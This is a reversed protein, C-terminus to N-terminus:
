ENLADRAGHENRLSFISAIREIDQDSIKCSNHALKLCYPYGSVSHYCLRNLVDRVEADSAQGLIEVRLMPTDNRLRAYVESLTGYPTSVTRPASYGSLSKSIRNYYFIDGAHSGFTGFQNRSESSKAVFISGSYKRADDFAAAATKKNLRAVISGDVCIVDARGSEKAQQTVSAEMAMARTELEERRATDSIDDVYDSAITENTSSIAVADVVFLNLGQYARKNWSSDVGASRCRVPAPQYGTWSAAAERSIAEYNSDKIRSIKQERTRLADLYVQRLL